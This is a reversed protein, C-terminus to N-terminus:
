LTSLIAMWNSYKEKQYFPFKPLPNVYIKSDNSMPKRKKEKKKREGRWRKEPDGRVPHKLGWLGEPCALALGCVALVRRWIFIVNAGGGCMYEGFEWDKCVAVDSWLGGGMEVVCVCMLGGEVGIM